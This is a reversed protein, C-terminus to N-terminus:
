AGNYLKVINEVTTKANQSGLLADERNGGAAPRGLVPNRRLGVAGRMKIANDGKAKNAAIAKQYMEFFVAPVPIGGEPHSSRCTVGLQAFETYNADEYFWDIFKKAEEDQGTDKFAVMFGGGLNTATVLEEPLPVSM